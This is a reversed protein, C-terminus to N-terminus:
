NWEFCPSENDLMHFLFFILLCLSTIKETGLPCYSCHLSILDFQYLHSSSPVKSELHTKRITGKWIFAVPRWREGTSNARDSHSMSTGIPWPNVQHHLYSRTPSALSGSHFHHHPNDLSHIPHASIVATFSCLVSFVSLMCVLMCVYLFASCGKRRGWLCLCPLWGNMLNLLTDLPSIKADLEGSLWRSYIYIFLFGWIDTKENNKKNQFFM